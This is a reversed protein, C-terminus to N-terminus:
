ANTDEVWKEWKSLNRLTSDDPQEKCISYEASVFFGSAITSGCVFGSFYTGEIMIYAYVRENASPEDDKQDLADVKNEQDIVIRLYKPARKLLMRAGAAPGDIIKVM